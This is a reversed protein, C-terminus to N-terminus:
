ELVQFKLDLKNLEEKAQEIETYLRSNKLAVATQNAIFKLANIENLSFTIEGSRKDGLVLLGLFENRFILPAMLVSELRAMDALCKNRVRAFRAENEIANSTILEDESLVITILEAGHELIYEGNVSTLNGTIQNKLLIKASRLLLNNIIIKETSKAINKDDTMVSLEDEVQEIIKKLDMKRMLLAKEIIPQVRSKTYLAIALFIIIGFVRLAHTGYFPLTSLFLSSIWVFVGTLAGFLMFIVIYQLTRQVIEEVEFLNSGLVGYSISVPLAIMFIVLHSFAINLPNGLISAIFLYLLASFTIGCSWLLLRARQRILPNRSFFRSRIIWGMSIVVAIGNIITITSGLFALTIERAAVGEMMYFALDILYLFVFPLCVLIYRFPKQKFYAPTDLFSLITLFMIVGLLYFAFTFYVYILMELICTAKFSYVRAFQMGFWNATTLCFLFVVWGATANPRILLVLLGTFLFCLGVFNVIGWTQVFDDWGFVMSSVAVEKQLGKQEYGYRFVSGVPKSRVFAYVEHQGSIKKGDLTKIELPFLKAAPSGTWGSLYWPYFSAKHTSGVMLFGPFKKGILQYGNNTSVLLGCFTSITLLIAIVYVVYWVITNQKIEQEQM